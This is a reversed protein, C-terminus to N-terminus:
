AEAAMRSRPLAPMAPPRVPLEIHVAVGRSGNPAVHILNSSGYLHELRSAVNRLGVGADRDFQWGQPLGVGDDRVRLAVTSGNRVATVEVHGGAVRPAVGHRIANEVLPQFLFSPM